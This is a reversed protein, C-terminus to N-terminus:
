RRFQSGVPISRARTGEQLLTAVDRAIEGRTALSQGTNLVLTVNSTPAQEQGRDGSRFTDVARSPGGGGGGVARSPAIAASAAGLATGLAVLGAGAVIAGAASFGVPLASFGAGALILMSGMQTAIQGVSRLMAAALADAAFEGAAAMDFLSSTLTEIATQAVLVGGAKAFDELATEAKAAEDRLRDLAEARAEIGPDPPGMEEGLQGEAPLFGAIGFPDRAHEERLKRLRALHEFQIEILRAAAKREEEAEGIGAEARAKRRAEGEAAIARAARRARDEESLEGPAAMGFGTTVAPRLLEENAKQVAAAADSAEKRLTKWRANVQDLLPVIRTGARDLRDWEDVLDGHRQLARALEKEGARVAVAVLEETRAHKEQTKGLNLIVAALQDGAAGMDGLEVLLDSSADGLARTAAESQQLAKALRQQATDAVKQFAQKSEGAKGASADIGKTLEALGVRSTAASIVGLAEVSPILRALQTQNGQTATSLDEIWGILGRSRIAAADMGVGMEDAAVTVEAAPKLVGALAQRLSTLVTRTSIGQKTVSAVFNTLEDFSIGLQSALPAVISLRAALEDFTTKGRKVALFMADSVDGAEDISKGYANIVNTLGDVAVEMSTFGGVSAQAAVQMFETVKTAEIGASLAQFMANQIDGSAKGYSAALSTVDAELQRLLAPQQGLMTNVRAMGIEFTHAAQAADSFFEIIQRGAAAASAAAGLAILNTKLDAFGDRVKRIERSARDRARIEAQLVEASTAM